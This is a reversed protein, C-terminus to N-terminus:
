IENLPCSASAIRVLYPCTLIQRFDRLRWRHVHWVAHVVRLHVRKLRKCVTCMCRWTTPVHVRTFMSYNQGLVPTNQTLYSVM